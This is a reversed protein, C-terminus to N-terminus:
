PTSEEVSQNPHFPSSSSSSQQHKPTNYSSTTFNNSKKFNRLKFISENENINQNFWNSNATNMNNFSQSAGFNTTKSKTFSAWSHQFINTKDQLKEKSKSFIGNSNKM